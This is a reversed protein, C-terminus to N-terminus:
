ICKAIFIYELIKTDVTCRKLTNAQQHTYSCIGSAKRARSFGWFGKKWSYLYVLHISKMVLQNNKKSVSTSISPQRWGKRFHPAYGVSTSCTHHRWPLSILCVHINSGEYNELTGHCKQLLFAVPDYLRTSESHSTNVESNRWSCEYRWFARHPASIGGNILFAIMNSKKMQELFNYAHPKSIEALWGALRTSSLGM